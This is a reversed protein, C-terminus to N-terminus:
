RFIIDLLNILLGRQAHEHLKVNGTCLELKYWKTIINNALLPCLNYKIYCTDLMVNNCCYLFDIFDNHNVDGNQPIYM